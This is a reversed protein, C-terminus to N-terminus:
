SIASPLAPLPESPSNTIAYVGPRKSRLRVQGARSMRDLEIFVQNWTLGSCELVVEELTCGPSRIIVELIQHRVDDM